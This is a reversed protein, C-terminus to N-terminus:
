YYISDPITFKEKQNALFHDLRKAEHARLWNLNEKSIDMDQIKHRRATDLFRFRQIPNMSKKPLLIQLMEQRSAKKVFHNPIITFSLM